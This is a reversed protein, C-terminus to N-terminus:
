PAALVEVRWPEDEGAPTLDLELIWRAGDPLAPPTREFELALPVARDPYFTLLEQPEDGPGSVTIPIPEALLYSREVTVKFPAGKGGPKALAADIRLTLDSAEDPRDLHADLRSYGMSESLVPPGDKGLVRVPVDTVRDWDAPDFRVGLDLGSMEASLRLPLEVAGDSSSETSVVRYGAVRAAVSGRVAARSLNALELTAEPPAGERAAIALPAGVPAFGDFSVEFEVPVPESNASDAVLVFEWTGPLLQSEGIRLRQQAPDDGGAWPLGGTARGEPDHLAVRARQRSGRPLEHRLEMGRAGVPVRVFVREIAAPALRVQGLRWPAGLAPEHPVVVSVPLDWEPGLRRRADAKMEKDFALVRATYLGPKKLAGGDYRLEFAVPEGGRTYAAARDTRVWEATTVLDFARYFASKQADTIAAGFEPTVTVAQGQPPLPPEIGRWHAATVPHGPLEPSETEVRWALPESAGRAALARYIEWARGVDIMGPGQDLPSANPIPLAGRRLAAKVLAGRVPLKEALAASIVLAAAGATQPSAMSTGRMVGPGVDWAPVTSAAIGPALVDPKNMEAGRSSFAFVVPQALRQGLLDRATEPVLAAGTAIVRSACSPLGATSLGPGENGNSVCGVMRENAALLRDIEREMDSQGEREAGIGYSMQVVVPVDHERAWRAAHQWAQWMSGSRTSGGSLANDGIKLSLVRAGPAVGDQGAQGGISHGCAIGSVHSGHAGDDFVFTVKDEDDDWLNLAIGVAPVGQRRGAEGMVFVRPELAYDARVQEDDLAGDGDTDVVIRRRTGRDEGAAYVVVGFVDDSAGDGDLDAAASGALDKERLYGVRLCGEEPAPQLKGAGRLWPGDEGHVGPGHEDEDAIAPELEVDGQGSFDRLDVVKPESTSTTSLGPITPDVGTDLVAIVVGRGDWQPHAEVFGRAGIAATSLFEWPQQEPASAPAPAPKQAVAIAAAAAASVVFLATKRM